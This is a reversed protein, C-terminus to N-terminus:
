GHIAGSLPPEWDLDAVEALKEDLLAAMDDPFPSTRRAILDAHSALTEMIAALAGTTENIMYHQQHLRKANRGILRCYVAVTEDVRVENVFDIVQRLVFNGSNRSKIYDETLGIAGMFAMASRGFITYYWSVNMHGLMDLYETPITVRYCMPLQMVKEVPVIVRPM